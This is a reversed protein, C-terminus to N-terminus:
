RINGRLPKPRWRRSATSNSEGSAEEGPSDLSESGRLPEIGELEDAGSDLGGELDINPEELDLDDIDDVGITDDDVPNPEPPPTLNSDASPGNLSSVPDSLVSGVRGYSRNARVHKGGFTPYDNDFPGCCMSCGSAFVLITTFIYILNKM